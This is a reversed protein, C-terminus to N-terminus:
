SATASASIFASIGGDDSCFVRYQYTHGSVLGGTAGTDSFSNSDPDLTAIATWVGGNNRQVTYSTEGSSNDTWTLDIHGASPTAVLNGPTAPLTTAQVSDTYGSFGGADQARVQYQYTFGEALGTDQYSNATGSLSAIQTFSGGGDDSREVLYHTAGASNDNWSLDIESTSITIAALSDPDLPVTTISPSNSYTSNLANAATRVRYSYTTAENVTVDTYSTATASLAAIQVWGSGENDNREVKYGTAGHSNDTWTLNV